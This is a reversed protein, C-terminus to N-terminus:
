MGLDSESLKKLSKGGRSASKVTEELIKTRTKTELGRILIAVEEEKLLHVLQPDASLNRHITQLLNEMGPNATKLAQDLEAIKQSIAAASPLEISSGLPQQETSM